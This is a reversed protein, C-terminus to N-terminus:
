RGVLQQHFPSYRAGEVKIKSSADELTRVDEATLKINAGGLNEDLRSLKTTGPIPVIWPKKALLWALAIQAPTAKKKQAFATIVDVLAQNTKRNDQSFRPVTNRFDTSDFKTEADIKGTLFGKGLPSFPVFGIGLEELTPIVSEEPERFFLSYESQLAAVPQVAHARRITKASAESLGFHKVKGEQILEKVAGAVDEIPVNLDVRHQYYLDIVDV